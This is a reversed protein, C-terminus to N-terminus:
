ERLYRELVFVPIDGRIIRDSMVYSPLTDLTLAQMLDAALPDAVDLFRFGVSHRAAIEKLDTALEPCSECGDGTFMVLRAAPTGFLAQEYLAILDLDRIKDDAYLDPATPAALARLRDAIGIDQASGTAPVACILCLIPLPFLGSWVRYVPWVRMTM